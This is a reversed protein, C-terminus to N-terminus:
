EGNRGVERKEWLMCGFDPSTKFPASYYDTSTYAVVDGPVPDNFEFSPIADCLGYEPDSRDVSDYDMKLAYPSGSAMRRDWSERSEYRWTEWYKCTGCNSM